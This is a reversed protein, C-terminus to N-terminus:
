TVSKTMLRFGHLTLRAHAKLSEQPYMFVIARIPFWLMPRSPGMLSRMLVSFSLLVFM